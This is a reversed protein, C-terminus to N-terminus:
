SNPDFDLKESLYRLQKFTLIKQKKYYGLKVLDNYYRVNLWRSLTTHSIGIRIAVEYKYLCKSSM